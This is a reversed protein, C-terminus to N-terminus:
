QRKQSAKAQYERQKPAERRDISAVDSIQTQRIWRESYERRGGMM